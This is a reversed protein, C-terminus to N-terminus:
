QREGVERQWNHALEVLAEREAQGCYFTFPSSRIGEDDQDYFADHVEDAHDDPMGHRILYDRLEEIV